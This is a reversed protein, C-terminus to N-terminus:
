TSSACASSTLRALSRAALPSIVSVLFRASSSSTYQHGRGCFEQEVGVEGCGVLRALPRRLGLHRLLDRGGLLTGIAVAEIGALPLGPGFANATRRQRQFLDLDAHLADRRAKGADLRPHLGLRDIDRNCHGALEAALQDCGLREALDRAED